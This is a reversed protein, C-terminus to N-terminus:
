HVNKSELLKMAKQVKKWYTVTCQKKYGNPGGNHIRALTEPNLPRGTREPRGYYSIYLWTMERSKIPDFRDQYTYNTGYIRNVDDVYVKWIQYMGVAKGGDGIARPDGRSEVWAIADLLTDAWNQTTPQQNRSTICRWGSAVVVGSIGLALVTGTVKGIEM